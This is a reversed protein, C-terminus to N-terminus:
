DKSGAGSYFHLDVTYLPLDVRVVYRVDVRMRNGTRRIHVNDEKVPLGLSAAKELVRTRLVDDSQTRSEVSHTMRDVYSQLEFNRLYVPALLVGFLGLGAIVLAGAAIRWRSVAFGTM